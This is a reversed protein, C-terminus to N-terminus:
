GEFELSWIIIIRVFWLPTTTDRADGGQDGGPGPMKGNHIGVFFMLIGCRPMFGNHEEIEEM